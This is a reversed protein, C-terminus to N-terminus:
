FCDLFFYYFLFIFASLLRVAGIPTCAMSLFTSAHTAFSTAVFDGCLLLLERWASGLADHMGLVPDVECELLLAEFIFRAPYELARIKWDRQVRDSEKAYAGCLAAISRAAERRCHKRPDRTFKSLLEFHTVPIPQGDAWALSQQTTYLASLLRLMPETFAGQFNEDQSEFDERLAQWVFTCIEPLLPAREKAIDPLAIYCADTIVARVDDDKDLLRKSMLDVAAMIISPNARSVRIIGKVALMGSMQIDWLDQQLLVDVHNLIASVVEAPSLSVVISLANAVAIRVPASDTQRNFHPVRSSYLQLFCLQVQSDFDAYRDLALVMLLCAAIGSLFNANAARQQTSDLGDRCGAFSGASSLIEILGLASGHRIYWTPSLLDTVLSETNATLPWEGITAGTEPDVDPSAVV